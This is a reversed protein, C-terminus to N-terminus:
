MAWEDLGSGFGTPGMRGGLNRSLRDEMREEHRAAGPGVSSASILWGKWWGGSLTEEKGKGKDLRSKRRKKDRFKFSSGGPRSGAYSEPLEAFSIRKPTSRGSSPTSGGLVRVGFFDPVSLTTPSPSPTVAPSQKMASHRPPSPPRTSSSHQGKTFLRSVSATATSTGAEAVPAPTRPHFAPPRRREPPTPPSPAPQEDLIKRLSLVTLKAPCGDSSNSSEETPPTMPRHPLSHIIQKPTLSRSSRDISAPGDLRRCSDPSKHAGRGSSRSRIDNRETSTSTSTTRSSRRSSSLFSPLSPTFSSPTSSSSFPTQHVFSSLMNYAPTSPELPRDTLRPSSLPAHLSLQSAEPRWDTSPHSSSPARLGLTSPLTIPDGDATSAVYHTLARPPPSILASRDLHSFRLQPASVDRIDLLSPRRRQRYFQSLPSSTPLSSSM